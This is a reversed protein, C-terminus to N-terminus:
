QFFQDLCLENTKLILMKGLIKDSVWVENADAKEAEVKHFIKLYGKDKKDLGFFNQVQEKNLAYFYQEEQHYADPVFLRYPRFYGGNNARFKLFMLWVNEPFRHFRGLHSSYDYSDLIYHTRNEALIQRMIYFDKKYGFIDMENKKQYHYDLLRRSIFLPISSVNSPFENYNIARFEDFTGRAFFEQSLDNRFFLSNFVSAIGTTLYYEFSEIMIPFFFDISNLRLSGDPNRPNNYYDSTVARADVDYFFTQKEYQKSYNLPTDENIFYYGKGKVKDIYREEIWGIKLLLCHTMYVYEHQIPRMKDLWGNVLNKQKLDLM